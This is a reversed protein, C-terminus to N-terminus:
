GLLGRPGPQNSRLESADSASVGPGRKWDRCARRGLARDPRSGPEGRLAGGLVHGPDAADGSLAGPALRARDSRADRRPRRSDAGAPRGPRRATRDRAPVVPHLRDRGGRLRRARGGVRSGRPQLPEARDRGRRDRTGRPARGRVRELDRRPPDRGRGPAGEARAGFGCVAGSPRALPAPLPRDPRAEAPAPEGRVGAEAAGAAGRAAVPEAPDDPPGWIGKGTIRMAGFGLRQVELEGGISFTDMGSVSALTRWLLGNVECHYILYSLGKGCAASSPDPRTADLSPTERTRLKGSVTESAGEACAAGLRGKLTTIMTRSWARGSVM